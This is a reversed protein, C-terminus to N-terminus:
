RKKAPTPSRCALWYGITEGSTPVTVQEYVRNATCDVRVKRAITAWHGVDLSVTGSAAAPSGKTGITWSYTQRRHEQNRIVFAVTQHPSPKIVYLSLHRPHLFYLETFPRAPETLGAKSLATHGASTQALGVAAVAAALVTCTAAVGVWSRRPAGNVVWDSDV